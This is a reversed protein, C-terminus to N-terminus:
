TWVRSKITNWVRPLQWSLPSKRPKRCLAFSKLVEVGDLEPMMIDLIILQPKEESLSHLMSVGDAFGKAEFGTANLTYVEIDRIASDDDVCWIM